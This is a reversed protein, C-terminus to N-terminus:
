YIGICDLEEMADKLEKRRDEDDCSNYEEELLENITEFGEETFKM